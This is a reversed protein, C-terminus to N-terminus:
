SILQRHSSFLVINCNILDFDFKIFEEKSSDDIIIIKNSYYKRICKYCEQWYFNTKESNVHRLLIFGFSSKRTKM